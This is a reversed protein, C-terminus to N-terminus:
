RRLRKAIPANEEESQRYSARTRLHASDVSDAVALRRHQRSQLTKAAMAFDAPGKGSAGPYFVHPYGSSTASMRRSPSQHDGGTSDILDAPRGAGPADWSQVLPQVDTDFERSESSSTSREGPSRSRRPKPPAPLLSEIVVGTGATSYHSPVPPAPLPKTTWVTVPSGGAMPRMLESTSASSRSWDAYGAGYTSDYSSAYAHYAPRGAIRLSSRCLV